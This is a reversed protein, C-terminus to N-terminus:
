TIYRLSIHRGGTRLPKHGMAPQGCIIDANRCVSHQVVPERVVLVLLQLLVWQFVNIFFVVHALLCLRPAHRQVLVEVSFTFTMVLEINLKTNLKHVDHNGTILM